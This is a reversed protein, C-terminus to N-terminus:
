YPRAAVIRRVVEAGIQERVACPSDGLYDGFQFHRGTGAGYLRDHVLRMARLPGACVSSRLVIRDTVERLRNEQYMIVINPENLAAAAVCDTAAKVSSKERESRESALATSAILAAVVVLAAPLYKRM